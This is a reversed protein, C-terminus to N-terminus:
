LITYLILKETEMMHARLIENQSLLAKFKIIALLLLQLDEFNGNLKNKLINIENHGNKTM